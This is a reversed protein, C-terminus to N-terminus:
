FADLDICEAADRYSEYVDAAWAIAEPSDTEVFVRAIGNDDHAAMGVCDDFIFLEFPVDDHVRIEFMGTRAAETAREAYESVIIEVIHHDFVVDIKTDNMMERHAVDVYFPSIISSFMRVSKSQEILEMIRKVAFHPQRPKPHIVDADSFRETPVDVDTAEVTNLFTELKNASRVRGRFRTVEDAVAHGFGTLEFGEDSERLLGNEVFSHTTRHLTSRSVDLNEVLDKAKRPGDCLQEFLSARKVIDVLLDDPLTEQDMTHNSDTDTASRLDNSHRNTM